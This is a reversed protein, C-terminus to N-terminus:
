YLGAAKNVLTQMRADAPDVFRMEQWDYAFHKGCDLCVCYTGTLAAVSSREQDPRCTMIPGRRMHWCRVFPSLLMRIINM